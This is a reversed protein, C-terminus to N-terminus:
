RAKLCKFANELEECRNSPKRGPSPFLILNFSSIRNTGKFHFEGKENSCSQRSGIIRLISKIGEEQLTQSACIELSQLSVGRSTGVATSAAPAADGDGALKAREKVAVNRPASEEPLRLSRESRVVPKQPLAPGSSAPSPARRLVAASEKATPTDLAAANRSRAISTKEQSLEGPTTDRRLRATSTAVSEAEVTKRDRTVRPQNEALDPLAAPSSRSISPRQIEELPPPVTLREIPKRAEPEPAPPPPPPEAPQAPQVAPKELKILAPPPKVDLNSIDIVTKMPSAPRSVSFRSVIALVGFLIVVLLARVWRPLPADEQLSGSVAIRELRTGGHGYTMRMM